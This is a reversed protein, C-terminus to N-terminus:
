KPLFITGINCNLCFQNIREIWQNLLETRNVLIITKLKLLCSIYIGIVTKGFGCPLSIIGGGNSKIKPMIDNIIDLQFDKLNGNFSINIKTPEKLIINNPKGIEKEGYYRPIYIYKNMVKHFLFYRDEFNSYADKIEITLDEKLKDKQEFNLLEYNIRYGRNTLTSTELLNDFM